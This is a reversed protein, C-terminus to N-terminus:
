LNDGLFITSDGTIITSDGTIPTKKEWINGWDQNEDGDFGVDSTVQDLCALGNRAIFRFTDTGDTWIEEDDVLVTTTTSTSTTSTSSTSTSSTSTSSTSTSSTSTTSTSSTSTTSTSTSTTSSSTTSTTTTTLPVPNLVPFDTFDELYETEATNSWGWGGGATHDYSITIVDGYAVEEDLFVTLFKGGLSTYFTNTRIVQDVGNITVTLLDLENQGAISAGDIMGSAFEMRLRDYHTALIYADFMYIGGPWEEMAENIIDDISESTIIRKLHNGQRIYVIAGMDCDYAFSINKSLVTYNETVSSIIADKYVSLTVFKNEFDENVASWITGTTDESEVRVVGERDNKINLNYFFASKTTDNAELGYVGEGNFLVSTATGFLHSGRSSVSEISSKFLSM